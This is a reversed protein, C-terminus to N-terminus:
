RLFGLALLRQINGSPGTFTIACNLGGAGGAVDLQGLVTALPTGPQSTLNGSADFRPYANLTHSVMLSGNIWLNIANAYGATTPSQYAMASIRMTENPPINLYCTVSGSTGAAASSVTVANGALQLTNVALDAIYTSINAGNIQGFVNTGFTAGVTAGSAYPAIQNQLSLGSSLIVTGASNKIDLGRLEGATAYVTGRVVANALEATGDANLRFGQSGAAYNSSSIFSGVKLSGAELKSVAMSAIKADDVALNAIKANTIQADIIFSQASYTGAAYTVGGIVTPSTLVVFPNGPGTLAAVLKEVNQGTTASLGNTGGAPSSEIGDKSVWTAWVRWATAPDTPHSSVTGAFSTIRVANAFVPLAGGTWIAGYINTRLYGHGITFTPNNHTIILNSIAATVSLGTPSPPALLDPVLEPIIVNAPLSVPLLRSPAAQMLIDRPNVIASM